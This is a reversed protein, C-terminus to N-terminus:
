QKVVLGGKLHIWDSETCFFRTPITCCISIGLLQTIHFRPVNVLGQSFWPRQPCRINQSPNCAFCGCAKVALCKSNSSGVGIRDFRCDKQLFSLDLHWNNNSRCNSGDTLSVYSKFMAMSITSRATLFTSNEM